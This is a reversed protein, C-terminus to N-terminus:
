GPIKIRVEETEFDLRILPNFQEVLNVNGICLTKEHYIGM